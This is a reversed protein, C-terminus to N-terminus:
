GHTWDIKDLLASIAFVRASKFWEPEHAFEAQGILRALVPIGRLKAEGEPMVLLAAAGDSISSSSAATVTGDKAFAPRLQSVKAIDNRGPEEDEGVRTEGKRTTVTVPVIEDAFRGDAAAARARTISAVAFEDQEARTFGYKAVTLEAFHGM